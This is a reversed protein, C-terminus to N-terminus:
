RGPVPKRHWLIGHQALSHRLLWKRLIPIQEDWLSGAVLLDLPGVIDIVELLHDAPPQTILFYAPDTEGPRRLQNFARATGDAARNGRASRGQNITNRCIQRATGM